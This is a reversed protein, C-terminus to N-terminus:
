NGEWTEPTVTEGRQEKLKIKLIRAAASLSYRSNEMRSITRRIHLTRLELILLQSKCVFYIEILM